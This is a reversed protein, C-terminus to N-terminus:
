DINWYADPDGDFAADIAEDSYGAVDQAYTGAYAGYHCDDDYDDYGGYGYDEDDEYRYRRGYREEEDVEDVEDNDRLDPNLDSFYVDWHRGGDEVRTSSRWKGLFNWVRDYAVPLVEDGETNIIGWCNGKRVRALGQDFGDIWDYKGFPVVVTEDNEDIVGWQKDDRQIVWLSGYQEESLNAGNEKEKDTKM